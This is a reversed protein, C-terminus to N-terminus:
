YDTENTVEKAQKRNTNIVEIYDYVNLLTLIDYVEIPKKKDTSQNIHVFSSDHCQKIQCLEGGENTYEVTTEWDVPNITIEM